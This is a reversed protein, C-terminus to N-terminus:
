HGNVRKLGVQFIAMQLGVNYFFFPPFPENTNYYSKLSKRLKASRIYDVVLPRGCVQIFGEFMRVCFHLYLRSTTCVHIFCQFLHVCFHLYLRSLYLAIIIRLSTGGHLTRHSM